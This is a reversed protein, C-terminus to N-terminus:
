NDTFPANRKKVRRVEKRKRMLRKDKGKLNM